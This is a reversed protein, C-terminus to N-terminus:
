RENKYLAGMHMIQNEKDNRNKINPHSFVQPLQLLCTGHRELSQQLMNPIDDSAM